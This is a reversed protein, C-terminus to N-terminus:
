IVENQKLKSIVIKQIGQIGLYGIVVAIGLKSQENTISILDCALPTTFIACGVGMLISGIRALIHKKSGTTGAIAGVLGAILFGKDIGLQILIEKM